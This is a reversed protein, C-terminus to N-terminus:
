DQAKGVLFPALPGALDEAYRSRLAATVDATMPEFRTTGFGERLKANANLAKVLTMVVMPNSRALLADFAAIEEASYSARLYVSFHKKSVNEDVKFRIADSILQLMRQPGGGNEEEFPMVSVKVGKDALTNLWKLNDGWSYQAVEIGGIFDEFNRYPYHRVYECYMSPLFRSPCRVALIVHRDYSGFAEMLIRLREQAFPFMSGSLLDNSKGMLNEDSLLLCRDVKEDIAKFFNRAGKGSLDSLTALVSARMERLPVYYVGDRALRSQEQELIMQITTTATKHVGLHVVLSKTM